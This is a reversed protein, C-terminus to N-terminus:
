WSMLIVSRAKAEREENTFLICCDGSPYPTFVTFVIGCAVNDWVRRVARIYSPNIESAVKEQSKSEAIAENNIDIAHWERGARKTSSAIACRGHSHDTEM